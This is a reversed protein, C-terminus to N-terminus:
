YKILEVCEQNMKHDKNHHDLTLLVCRKFKYISFYFYIQKKKIAGFNRAQNICMKGYQFGFWM